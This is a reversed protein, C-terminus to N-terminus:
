YKAYLPYQRGKTAYGSLEVKALIKGELLSHIEAFTKYGSVDINNTNLAYLDVTYEFPMGGPEPDPGHYAPTSRMFNNLEISGGPMNKGSANEKIENCNAPINFVAWRISNFSPYTPYYMILAFSEVGEPPNVWKFPPSINQRGDSYGHYYKDPIHEGNKFAASKLTFTKSCGSLGFMFMAALVMVFTVSFMKKM